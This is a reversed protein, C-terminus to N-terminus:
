RAKPIWIPIPVPISREKAAHKQIEKEQGLRM